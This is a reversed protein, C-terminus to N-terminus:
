RNRLLLHLITNFLKTVLKLRKTGRMINVHPLSLPPFEKSLKLVQLVHKIVRAKNKFKNKHDM